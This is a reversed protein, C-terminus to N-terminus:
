SSAKWALPFRPIGCLDSKLAAKSLGAELLLKNVTEGQQHGVEMAVLGGPTLFEPCRSCFPRILDLGDAGGFLAMEPDHLVEPTLDSRESEAIYPLNAIILDFHGTVESFLDSELFRAPIELAEANEKALSLAPTSLDTLLLEECDTGLAKAVSLGLAGSGCGIELIRAPRPFHLRHILEVLEETEPRPILARADTKFTSQHFETIGILHQLPTHQGRKKLNERLTSLAKEDVPEDFRLYLDMRKLDLQHALMLEMNLRPESINKQALFQAGKELVDLITTM